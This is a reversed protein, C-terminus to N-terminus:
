GDGDQMVVASGSSFRPRAPHDRRWLVLEAAEALGEGQEWAHVHDRRVGVAVWVNGLRRERCRLSCGELERMVAAM